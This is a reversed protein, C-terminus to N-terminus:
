ESSVRVVVEGCANRVAASGIEHGNPESCVYVAFEASLGRPLIFDSVGSADTRAMLVVSNMPTSWVSTLDADNDMVYVYAGKMASEDSDRVVRVNMSCIQMELVGRLSTDTRHEIRESWIIGALDPDRRSVRLSLRFNGPECAAFDFEGSSSIDAVCVSHPIQFFSSGTSDLAVSFDLGADVRGMGVLEVLGALRHEGPTSASQIRWARFSDLTRWTTAAGARPSPADRSDALPTRSGGISVADMTANTSGRGGPDFRTAFWTVISALAILAVASRSVARSSRLNSASMPVEAMSKRSMNAGSPVLQDGSRAKFPATHVLPAPQPTGLSPSQLRSRPLVAHM